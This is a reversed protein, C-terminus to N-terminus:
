TQKALKLGFICTYMKGGTNLEKKAAHIFKVLPFEMEPTAACFQFRLNNDLPQYKKGKV